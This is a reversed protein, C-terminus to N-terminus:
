KTIKKKMRVGSGDLYSLGSVVTTTGTMWWLPEIYTMEPYGCTFNCLTVTILLFQFCTNTKSVISPTISFTASFTTDFFPAGKPREKHRLLTAMVLLAVDRGVIVIALPIPILGKYLLGAILSGIMFKDAVPDLFAGLVTEQHLKKALYGDLWDTFSFIVCGSLALVKMDNAVAIGLLPSSVIRSM